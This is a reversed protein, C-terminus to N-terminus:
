DALPECDGSPPWETMYPSHCPVPEPFMMHCHNLGDLIGFGRPCIAGTETYFGLFAIQGCPGGPQSKFSWYEYAFNGPDKPIVPLFGEDVLPKLFDPDNQDYYTHCPIGNHTAQYLALANIINQINEFRQADRGKARVNNLSALIITALFGIIAIVVLLEILTFGQSNPQTM